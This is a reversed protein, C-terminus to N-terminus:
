RIILGEVRLDVLAEDELFTRRVYAVKCLPVCLPATPQPVTAFVLLDRTRNGITDNTNKLSM